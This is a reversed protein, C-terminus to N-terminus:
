DCPVPRADTWQKIVAVQDRPSLLDYRPKLQDTLLAERFSPMAIAEASLQPILHPQAQHTSAEHSRPMRKAASCTHAKAAATPYPGLRKVEESLTAPRAASGSREAEAPWETVRRQMREKLKEYYEKSIMWRGPEAAGLVWQVRPEDCIQFGCVTNSSPSVVSTTDPSWLEHVTAFRGKFLAIKWVSKGSVIQKEVLLAHEMNSLASRAASSTAEDLPSRGSSDSNSKPATTVADTQADNVAETAVAKVSNKFNDNTTTVEDGEATARPFDALWSVPAVKEMAKTAKKKTRDTICCLQHLLTIFSRSHQELRAMSVRHQRRSDRPHM